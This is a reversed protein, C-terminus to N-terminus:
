PQQSCNKNDSGPFVYSAMLRSTLMVLRKETQMKKLIRRQYDRLPIIKRVSQDIITFFNEAFYCVDEKCKKLAEQMKATYSYEAHVPLAANGLYHQEVSVVDEDFVKITTKVTKRAM